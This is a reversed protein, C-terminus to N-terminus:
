KFPKSIQRRSPKLYFLALHFLCNRACSQACRQNVLGRAVEFLLRLFQLSSSSFPLSLLFPPSPPLCSPSPPVPFSPLPLSFTSPLFPPFPLPLPLLLSPLVSPLLSPFISPFIQSPPILYLALPLFALTFLLYINHWRQHFGLSALGRAVEFLLHLFPLSSSSFPLSPFPSLTPFPPLLFAPPFFCFPLSFRLLPFSTFSLFTFTFLLFSLHFPFPFARTKWARAM